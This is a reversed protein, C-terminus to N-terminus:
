FRTRKRTDFAWQPHLEVTQILTSICLFDVIQQWPLQWYLRCVWFRSLYWFALCFISDHRKVLAGGQSLVCFWLSIGSQINILKQTFNTNKECWFQEQRLGVKQDNSALVYFLYIFCVLFSFCFIYIYFLFFSQDWVENRWKPIFNSRKQGWGRSTM